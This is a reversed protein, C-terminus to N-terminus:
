EELRRKMAAQYRVSTRLKELFAKPVQHSQNAAAPRQAAPAADVLSYDCGEINPHGEDCPILLFAHGLTFFDTPPLGVPVGNGAIEGRENITAAEVLQLLSGPPVLTNLDAMSGHEWLFARSHSGDACSFTGGVVQSHSNISFALSGCDELHGLDTAVGKRWLFADFQANPFAAAGVIETADNIGFVLLPSGGITNTTLDILKEQDWLFADCNSSGSGTTLCAGPDAALSSYGIVQGRNNLGVPQGFAGGLTGLDLMTGDQWLFPDLNPVGTVPNPTSNTYSEGAIQGRENVFYAWADLGGLTQLDLMHGKQWLFARTQTGNPSGVLQYLLSFPDPIANLAAGVVQSHNNIAGAAVGGVSYAGGFTGLNIIEGEKWLVARFKKTGLVPDIDDIESTGSIEGSANVSGANSCNEEAPPLAGLDSVVGNRLAFTHFVFPVGSFTGACVFGDSISTQLIATNSGGVTTGRVNLAPVSNGPLNLFSMPGGFTGIDILKYHHHEHAAAGSLPIALAFLTTVLISSCSGTNM